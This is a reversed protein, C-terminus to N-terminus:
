NVRTVHVLLPTFNYATVIDLNWDINDLVIMETEKMMDLREPSFNGMLKRIMDSM